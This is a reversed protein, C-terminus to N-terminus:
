VNKKPNIGPKAYAYRGIFASRYYSDAGNGLISEAKDLQLFGDELLITNDIFVSTIKGIVLLTDNLTIPIIQQLSLAYKIISEKIFPAIIGEAFECSLGVADFESEEASYKASTQHAKDVFNPRIHNITYVGTEEINKLTHQLASRPRNIYGILPPNSGIHVISSFIGINTKGSRGVSGILSVPKIGSLSNVFNARYFRDWSQIEQLTFLSM